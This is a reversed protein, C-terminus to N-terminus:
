NEDGAKRVELMHCHLPTYFYIVVPFCCCLCHFPCLADATKHHQPRSTAGCFFDVQLNWTGASGACDSYFEVLRLMNINLHIDHEGFAGLLPAREFQGSRLHVNSQDNSQAMM